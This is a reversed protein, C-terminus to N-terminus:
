LDGGTNDPLQQSCFINMDFTMTFHYDQIQINYEGAVSFHHKCHILLTDVEPVGGAKRRLDKDHNIRIETLHDGGSLVTTRSNSM